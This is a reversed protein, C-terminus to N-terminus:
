MFRAVQIFFIVSGCIVLTVLALWGRKGSFIQRTPRVASDADTEAFASETGEPSVARVRFFYPKGLELQEIILRMEGSRYAWKDPVVTEPHEYVGGYEGSRRVVYRAVRSPDAGPQDDASFGFIVDIAEGGDWNSDEARISGPARPPEAAWLIRGPTAPPLGVFVVATLLTGLRCRPM